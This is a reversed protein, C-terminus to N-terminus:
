TDKEIIIKLDKNKKYVVQFRRVANSFQNVFFFRCWFNPPIMRGDKTIFIEGTRGLFNKLVPLTRGCECKSSGVEGMDGMRYRIFPMLSADIPTVLLEGTERASDDGYAPISEVIHNEQNIHMSGHPCRGAVHGVERAGYNNSVPCQFVQKMIKEEHEYVPGAWGIMLEPRFAGINIGYRHVYDALGALAAPFGYLVKPQFALVGKLCIEYDDDSLNTGPLLLQNWLAKRMRVTKNEPSYDISLKVFRAEKAGPNINFWSKLRMEHVWNLATRNGDEYFVTPAGTSGSSTNRLLKHKRFRAFPIPTGPDEKRSDAHPISAKFRVDVMDQHHDIVEQRSLPPIRRLDEIQRLDDPHFHIEKFKKRYFPVYRNAHHIIKKLKNLQFKRHLEESYYESRKLNKYDRIIHKRNYCYNSLPFTFYGVRYEALRGLVNM